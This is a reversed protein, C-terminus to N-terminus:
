RRRPTFDFIDPIRQRIVKHAYLKPWILSDIYGAGFAAIDVLIHIVIATVLGYNLTLYFAFMGFFWALVWGLPGLYKHGDRFRNAALIIASGVVVWSFNQPILYLYDHLIGGTFGDAIPIFIASDIIDILGRGGLIGGLIFNAIQVWFSLSLFAIWRFFLEESVGAFISLGFVKKLSSTHNNNFKPDKRKLFFIVTNISFYGIIWYKGADLIQGWTYNGKDWHVLDWPVLHPVFIKLLILLGPGTFFLLALVLCAIRGVSLKSM